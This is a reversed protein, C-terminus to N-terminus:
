NIIRVNHFARNTQRGSVLKINVRRAAISTITGLNGRYLGPTLLRVRQGERLANGDRDAPLDQAPVTPPPTVRETTLEPDTVIEEIRATVERQEISLQQLRDILTSLKASRTRKQM